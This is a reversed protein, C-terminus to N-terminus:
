SNLQELAAKVAAGSNIPANMSSLVADLAGLCYLINKSNSAYGM